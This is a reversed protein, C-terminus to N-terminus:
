HAPPAPEANSAASPPGPAHHQATSDIPPEYAPQFDDPQQGPFGRTYFPLPSGYPARPEAPRRPVAPMPAPRAQAPASARPASQKIDGFPDTQGILRALEALPDNREPGAARASRAPAAQTPWRPDVPPNSRFNSDDAM